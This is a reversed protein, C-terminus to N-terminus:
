DKLWYGCLNLLRDDEAKLMRNFLEMTIAQDGELATQIRSLTMLHRLHNPAKAGFKLRIDTFKGVIAQFM